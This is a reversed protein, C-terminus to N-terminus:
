QIARDLRAIVAVKTSACRRMQRPKQRAFFHELMALFM